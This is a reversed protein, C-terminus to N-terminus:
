IKNRSKVEAAAIDVTKGAWNGTHRKMGTLSNFLTSKGVNPNGALAVSFKNEKIDDGASKKKLFISAM